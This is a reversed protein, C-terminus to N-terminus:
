FSSLHDFVSNFTLIQLNCRLIAYSHKM